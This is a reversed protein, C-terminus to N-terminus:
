MNFLILFSSNCIMLGYIISCSYQVYVTYSFPIALVALGAILIGVLSVVTAKLKPLSSLVGSLIRGIANSIGMASLLYTCVTPNMKNKKASETIYLFPIYYGFVTLIASINLLVFPGNTFLSLDLMTSLTRKVSQPCIVCPVYTEEVDDYTTVRTM